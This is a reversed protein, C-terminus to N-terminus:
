QFLLCMKKSGRFQYKYFPIKQYIWNEGKGEAGGRCTLVPLWSIIICGKGKSWLILFPVERFTWSNLSQEEVAPLVSKVGPWPVIIECAAYTLEETMDLEKRDWPSYDVLNRWGYSERPLFVPNPLWKKRWPIKRVWSDFGDGANCASEKSDSGSPFGWMSYPTVLFLYIFSILVNFIECLILFSM